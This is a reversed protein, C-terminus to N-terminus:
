LGRSRLCLSPRLYAGWEFLTVKVTMGLL